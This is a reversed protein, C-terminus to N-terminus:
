PTPTNYYVGIFVGKCVTPPIVRQKGQYAERSKWRGVKSVSGSCGPLFDYGSQRRTTTEM